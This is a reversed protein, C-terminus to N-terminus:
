KERAPGPKPSNANYWTVIDVAKEYARNMDARGVYARIDEKKTSLTTDGSGAPNPLHNIQDVLKMFWNWDSLDFGSIVQNEQNIVCRCGCTCEKLGMFYLLVDM